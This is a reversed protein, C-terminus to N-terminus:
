ENLKLFNPEKALSLWIDLEVQPQTLRIKMQGLVGSVGVLGWGGM